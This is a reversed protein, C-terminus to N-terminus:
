DQLILNTSMDVYWHFLILILVSVGIAFHIQSLLTNALQPMIGYVGFPDVAVFITQLLGIFGVCAFVYQRVNSIVTLGRTMKASLFTVVGFLFVLIYLLCVFAQTAKMGDLQTEKM